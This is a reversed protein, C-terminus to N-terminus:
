VSKSSAEPFLAKKMTLRNQGDVYEYSLGDMMRRVLHIGDGGTDWDDEYDHPKRTIDLPNFPVGSDTIRVAVINAGEQWLEVTVEGPADPYAYRAVNSFIEDQAMLIQRRPRDPCHLSKLWDSTFTSVQSSSDLRAPVTLSQVTANLRLALMTIDDFQERGRAFTDVDAKMAPLLTELAVGDPQAALVAEIRSNEYRGDDPDAAEPLGDTYMFLVDGPDFHFDNLRYKMGVDDALVINARSKVSEWTKSAARYVYPANHGANAFVADGTRLDILIAWATVFLEADNGEVLQDSAKEFALNPAMGAIMRDKICAKANMMFLAAPVGKGSVDAIVAGLHNEDVLFFDYFDGAVEKAPDMTAYIDFDHRDPWPPFVKPLANAQIQTALSLEEGIRANKAELLRKIKQLHSVDIVLAAQGRVINDVTLRTVSSQYYRGEYCIDDQNPASCVSELEPPLPGNVALDPFFERATPNTYLVTGELDMVIAAEGLGEILKHQAEEIVHFIKHTVVCWTLISIAIIAALSSPDFEMIDLFNILNSFFPTLSAIILYVFTRREKGASNRYGRILMIFVLTVLLLTMVIAATDLPGSLSIAAPVNKRFTLGTVQFYWELHWGTLLIFTLFTVFAEVAITFAKPIEIQCWSAFFFFMLLITLNSGINELRLAVEMMPITTASGDIFNGLCTISVFFLLAVLLSSSFSPESSRILIIIDLLPVIMCLITVAQLANAGNM